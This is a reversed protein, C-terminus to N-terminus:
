RVVDRVSLRLIALIGDHIIDRKSMNLAVGGRDTSLTATRTAPVVNDDIQQRCGHSPSGVQFLVHPLTRWCGAGHWRPAHDAGGHGAVATGLL